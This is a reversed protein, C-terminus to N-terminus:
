DEIGLLNIIKGRDFGVVIQGDIDAVPVGTQGSIDIMKKAAERDQSVNIDEFEVNKKKLFEKLTVCYPCFTTSYVIVKKNM